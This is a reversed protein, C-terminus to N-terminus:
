SDGELRMLEAALAARDAGPVWSGVEHRMVSESGDSAPGCCLVPLGVDMSEFIKSPM